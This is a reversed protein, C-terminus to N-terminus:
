SIPKVEMKLNCRLLWYSITGHAIQRATGSGLIMNADKFRKQLEKNEEKLMKPADHINSHEFLDIEDERIQIAQFLQKQVQPYDMSITELLQERVLFKDLWRIANDETVSESWYPFGNKLKGILTQFLADNGDDSSWRRREAEQIPAAVLDPLLFGRETSIAKEQSFNSEDQITIEFDDQIFDLGLARVKLAKPGAYKVIGSGGQNPVALIWSSLRCGGLLKKVDKENKKDTLKNIDINIKAQLHEYLEKESYHKQPSYCQYATNQSRILLDIGHDTGGPDPNVWQVKQHGVRIHLWHLVKKEWEKDDYLVAMGTVRIM